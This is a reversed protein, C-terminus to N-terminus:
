KALGIGNATCIRQFIGEQQAGIDNSSIDLKILAGMDPIVDALAVVGSMDGYVDRVGNYAMSNASINLSTMTQNNELAKALLKTGEAYINNSGIDLSLLARMDKIATALAIIGTPIQPLGHNPCIKHHLGAEPNMCGKLCKSTNGAQSQLEGINNNALNLFSLGRM